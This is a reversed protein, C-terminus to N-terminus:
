FSSYNCQQGPDVHAGASHSKGVRPMSGLGGAYQRGLGDLVVNRCGVGCGPGGRSRPTRGVDDGFRKWGNVVLVRNWMGLPASTLDLGM